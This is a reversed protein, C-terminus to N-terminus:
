LYLRLLLALTVIASVETFANVKMREGTVAVLKNDKFIGYYDGLL